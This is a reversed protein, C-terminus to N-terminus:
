VGGFQMAEVVDTNNVYIKGEIVIEIVVIMLIIKPM